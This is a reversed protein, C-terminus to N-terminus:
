NEVKFKGSFNAEYLKGKKSILMYLTKKDNKATIIYYWEKEEKVKINSAAVERWDATLKEGDVDKEKKIIIDIYKPALELVQQSTLQTHAHGGGHASAYQVNTLCITLAFLLSIFKTM